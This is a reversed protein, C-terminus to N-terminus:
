VYEIILVILIKKRKHFFFFFYFFSSPPKPFAVWYICSAKLRNQCWRYRSRFVFPKTAQSSTSDPSFQREPFQLTYPTHTHTHSHNSTFHKKLKKLPPPILLM